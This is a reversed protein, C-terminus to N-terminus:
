DASVSAAFVSDYETNTLSAKAVSEFNRISGDAIAMRPLSEAVDRRHLDRVAHDATSVTKGCVKSVLLDVLDSIHSGTNLMPSECEIIKAIEDTTMRAEYLGTPGPRHALKTPSEDVGLLVPAGGPLHQGLEPLRVGEDLCQIAWVVHM